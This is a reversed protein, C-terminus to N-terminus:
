RQFNEKLVTEKVPSTVSGGRVCWTFHTFTKGFSVVLGDDFLVTWANDSDEAFETASWNAALGVNTFPNKPPLAPNFQSYDLLSMLEKVEPLRSGDGLTPCHDLAQQWSRLIRDPMQEWFLGTTNDCVKTM